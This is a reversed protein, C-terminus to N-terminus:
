FSSLSSELLYLDCFIISYIMVAEVFRMPVRVKYYLISFIYFYRSFFYRLALVERTFYAFYYIATDFFGLSLFPFNRLYSSSSILTFLFILFFSQLLTLLSSIDIKLFIRELFDSVVFKM